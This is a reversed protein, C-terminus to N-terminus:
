HKGSGKLSALQECITDCLSLGQFIQNTPQIISGHVSFIALKYKSQKWDKGGRRKLSDLSIDIKIKLQRLESNNFSIILYICKELVNIAYAKYTKYPADVQASSDKLSATPTQTAADVQEFLDVSKINITSSEIVQSTLPSTLSAYSSLNLKRQKSITNSNNSLNHQLRFFISLLLAEM